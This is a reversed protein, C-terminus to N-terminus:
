KIRSRPIHKHGSVGHMAMESRYKSAEHQLQVSTKGKVHELLGTIADVPDKIKEREAIKKIEEKTEEKRVWEYILRETATSLSGRSYGFRRMALERFKKEIDDTINVKLIGM